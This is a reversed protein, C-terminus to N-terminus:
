LMAFRNKPSQPPSLSRPNMNQNRYKQSDSSGRRQTRQYRPNPLSCNRALHGIQHCLYCTGRERDTKPRVNSTDMPDNVREARSIGNQQTSMPNRSIPTIRPNQTTVLPTLTSYQRRRNELDQLHKAFHSLDRSLPPNHMLM